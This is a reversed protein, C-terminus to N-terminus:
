DVPMWERHTVGEVRIIPPSDLSDFLGKAAASELARGLAVREGLPWHLIHLLFVLRFGKIEHIIRLAHFFATDPSLNKIEGERLVILLESFSPSTITSFTDM